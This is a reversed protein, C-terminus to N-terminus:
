NSKSHYNSQIPMYNSIADVLCRAAIISVTLVGSHPAIFHSRTSPGTGIGTDKNQFERLPSLSKKWPFLSNKPKQERLTTQHHGDSRFRGPRGGGFIASRDDTTIPKWLIM